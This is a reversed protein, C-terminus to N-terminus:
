SGCPCCSITGGGPGAPLPRCAAPAAPWPGPGPGGCALAYEGARCQNQCNSFTVGVVTDDPGPCETSSESLCAMGGGNSGQCALYFSAARCEGSSADADAFSAPWTCSAALTASASSASGGCGPCYAFLGLLAGLNRLRLISRKM